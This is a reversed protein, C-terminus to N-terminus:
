NWSSLEQALANRSASNRPTGGTSPLLSSLVLYGDERVSVSPGAKMRKVALTSRNKKKELYFLIYKFFFILIECQQETLM